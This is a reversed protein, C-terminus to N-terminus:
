AQDADGETQEAPASSEDKASNKATGLNELDSLQAKIYTHLRSRYDREFGRLEEIKRELLGRDQGLRELIAARKQQAQAVMGDSRERAETLM